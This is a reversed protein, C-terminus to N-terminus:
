FNALPPESKNQMFMAINAFETIYDCVSVIFKTHPKLNLIFLEKSCFM